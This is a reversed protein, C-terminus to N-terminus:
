RGGSEVAARARELLQGGTRTSLKRLQAETPKVGVLGVQRLSELGAIEELDMAQSRAVLYFDELQALGGWGTWDLLAPCSNINIRRLAAAASVQQIADVKALGSLRADTMVTLGSFSLEGLMPLAELRLGKLGGLASLGAADELAEMKEVELYSLGGFAEIGRLSSLEPIQSISLYQLTPVAPLQQLSAPGTWSGLELGQLREQSDLLAKIFRPHGQLRLTLLRSAGGDGTLEKGGFGSLGLHRLADMGELTGLDGSLHEVERLFELGGADRWASIQEVSAFRLSAVKPMKLPVGDDGKEVIRCGLRVMGPLRRVVGASTSFGGLSHLGKLSTLADVSQPEHCRLELAELSPLRSLPAVDVEGRISTELFRLRRFQALPGADGLTSTFARGTDLCEIGALVSLSDFSKIQGVNFHVAKLRGLGALASFDNQHHVQVTVAVPDLNRLLDAVPEVQALMLGGVSEVPGLKGLLSAFEKRQSSDLSHSGGVGGVSVGVLEQKSDAGRRRYLFPGETELIWEAAGKWELLHSTGGFGGAASEVCVWAGPPLDAEWTHSDVRHFAGPMGVARPVEEIHEVHIRLSMWGAPHRNAAALSAAHERDGVALRALPFTVTKGTALRLTISRADSSVWEGEVERGTTDTWTRADLLAPTMVLAFLSVLLPVRM